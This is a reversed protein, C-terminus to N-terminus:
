TSEEGFSPRCASPIYTKVESLLLARVSRSTSLASMAYEPTSLTLPSLFRPSSVNFDLVDLVNSQRADLPEGGAFFVKNDLAAVAINARNQSLKLRAEVTSCM